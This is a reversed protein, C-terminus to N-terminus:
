GTRKQLARMKSEGEEAEIPYCFFEGWVDNELENLRVKYIAEGEQKMMDSGEPTYGEDALEKKVQDVTKGEYHAVSFQVQGMWADPAYQQLDEETLYITYGEAVCIAIPVESMDSSQMVTIMTKDVNESKEESSAPVTTYVLTGFGITLIVTCILLFIGNKKEKQLLINKFRRKM